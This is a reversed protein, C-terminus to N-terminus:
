EGLLRQQLKELAVKTFVLKNHNLV